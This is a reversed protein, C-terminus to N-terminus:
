EGFVEIVKHGTHERGYEDVARVTLTYVGPGLDEPLRATWLHKCPVPEVWSKKTDPHRAFLEEVFPDKELVKTMEVPPYGAIEYKVSSNPGGDYLNVKVRTAYIQDTHIRPGTLQWPEYDRMVGKDDRHYVADFTIRMQEDPSKGAAKFRMTVDTGDVTMVYYGNPTGDRQETTPIGREDMPGSWWSGSVTAIVHQHFEGPGGFGDEQGFYEHYVTHTHGAVAFLHPRGTLVRFVEERNEVNVSASNPHLGDRFPIHMALVVLREKPVNDLDNALWRLQRKDVLGRYSGEGRPHPTKRDANTGNYHVDDLVVFHARGYDFSFYTPGWYRKFTELSHEDDPSLYNSEHNGPVNYWPIGIRGIVANYRPILSLDDFMIDGTTIGFAADVGIVEAVVDDRIFSVEAHSQPQTDSFWVVRFPDPEESRSLPFDISRPLKGTPEVGPFRLGLSAPTGEPCHIYYFQPLNDEDLPVAYGSPKTVFLVDGEEIAISYHGDPGTKVVDEGNSVPVAEVGPEGHDFAGDGDLDEFVRGKATEASAADAQLAASILCCLVWILKQM